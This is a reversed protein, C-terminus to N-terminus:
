SVARLPRVEGTPEVVEATGGPGPLWLAATRPRAAEGRGTRTITVQRSRLHGHGHDLGEWRAATIALTLDAETAWGSGLQVLVSGRERARAVLRRADAPKV